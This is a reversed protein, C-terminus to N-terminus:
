AGSECVRARSQGRKRAQLPATRRSVDALAMAMSDLLGRSVGGPRLPRCASRPRWRNRSATGRSEPNRALTGACRYAGGPEAARDSRGLTRRLAHRVPHAEGASTIGCLVHGGRSPLVRHSRIPAARLVRLTTRRTTRVPVHASECGSHADGRERTLACSEIRCSRARCGVVYVVRTSCTFIRPGRSSSSGDELVVGGEVLVASHHMAGPVVRCIGNPSSCM